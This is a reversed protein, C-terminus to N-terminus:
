RADKTEISYPAAEQRELVDAIRGLADSIGLVALALAVLAAKFTYPEVRANRFAIHRDGM